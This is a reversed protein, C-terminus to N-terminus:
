LSLFVCNELYTEQNLVYWNVKQRVKKDNAGDM